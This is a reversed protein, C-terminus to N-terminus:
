REDTERVRRRGWPRVHGLARAGAMRPSHVRRAGEDALRHAPARTLVQAAQLAGLGVLVIALAQAAALTAPRAAAYGCIYLRHALDLDKLDPVMM